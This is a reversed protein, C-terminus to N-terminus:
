SEKNIINNNICAFFLFFAIGIICHFGVSVCLLFLFGLFMSKAYKQVETFKFAGLYINRLKFFIYWVFLLGMCGYMALYNTIFAHQGIIDSYQSGLHLGKGIFFTQFDSNLWTRLSNLQLEGRDMFSTSEAYYEEGRFAYLISEARIQLRAPLSEIITDAFLFVFALIAPVLVIIAVKNVTKKTNQLVYLSLLLILLIIATMRPVVLFMFSLPFIISLIELMKCWLIKETRLLFVNGMVFFAFAQYFYASSIRNTGKYAEPHVYYSVFSYPNLIYLFLNHAVNVLFVIQITRLLFLKEKDSYFNLVYFSKIIIDCMAIMIYYNGWEASSYGAIRLFICWVIWISLVFYVSKFKFAKFKNEFIFANIHWAAVLMSKASTPVLDGFYPSVTVLITVVTLAINIKRYTSTRYLSQEININNDIAAM